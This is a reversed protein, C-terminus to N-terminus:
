CHFNQINIPSSLFSVVLCVFVLLFFLFLIIAIYKGHDTAFVDIVDLNDWLAQQDEETGLVPRVSGKKPGLRDLDKQTLFLHHPCVECTM